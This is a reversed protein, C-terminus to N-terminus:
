SAFSGTELVPECHILAGNREAKIEGCGSLDAFILRLERKTPLLSPEGQAPLVTFLLDGGGEKM